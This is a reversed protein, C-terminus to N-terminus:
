ITNTWQDTIRKKSNKIGRYSYLIYQGFTPLGVDNKEKLEQLEEQYVELKGNKDM